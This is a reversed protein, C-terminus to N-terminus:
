GMITVMMMTFEVMEMKSHSPCPLQYTNPKPHAHYKGLMNLTRPELRPLYVHVYMYVYVFVCVCVYVCVCVCVCV